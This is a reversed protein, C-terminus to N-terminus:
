RPSIGRMGGTNTPLGKLGQAQSEKYWRKELGAGIYPIRRAAAKGLQKARSEGSPAFIIGALEDLDSGVPGFATGSVKGLPRRVLSESVDGVIGFLASQLYNAMIRNFVPNKSGIYEGREQLEEEIDGSALGKIAAKIDGIVEGAVQYTLLIAGAKIMKRTLTPQRKVANAMNRTNLFSFRKFLFPLRLLLNDAFMAKSLTLKDPYGSSIEVGRGGAFDIQEPTLKDQKLVETVDGDIFEQLTKSWKGPNKKAKNFLVQAETRGALSGITRILKETATTGYAKGLLKGQGVDHLLEKRLIQHGGSRTAIDASKHPNKITNFIAKATNKVGLASSLAALDGMNTIGFQSLKSFVEWKVIKDYLTHQSSIDGLEERNLYDNVIKQAKVPDEANRIAQSIKSGSAAVDMPGYRKARTIAKALEYQHAELVDLSEIYGPLKFDRAHQASTFREGKETVQKMMADVAAPSLPRGQADKGHKLLKERLAVPDKFLEDPYRHPFYEGTHKQFPINKGASTQMRVNAAEALDGLYETSKRLTKYADRVKNSSAQSLPVQGDLIKIVEAQEDKSLSRRVQRTKEAEQGGLRNSETREDHLMKALDSGVKGMKKLKSLSSVALPEYIAKYLTSDRFRKPLAKVAGTFTPNKLVPNAAKKKEIIEAVSKRAVKVKKEGKGTEAVKPQGKSYVKAEKLIDKASKGEPAGVPTVREGEGFKKGSFPEDPSSPTFSSAPPKPPKPPGGFRSGTQPEFREEVPPKVPATTLDPEETYDLAGKKNPTFKKGKGKPSISVTKAPKGWWEPQTPIRGEPALLEPLDKGEIVGEILRDLEEQKLKPSEGVSKGSAGKGDPKDGGSIGGPKGGGESKISAAQRALVDEKSEPRRRAEIYERLLEPIEAVYDGTKDTLAKFIQSEYHTTSPFRTDVQSFAWTFGAGEERALNHAYEHKIIHVFRRAAEPPSLKRPEYEWTARSKFGTYLADFPNITILNKLNPSSTAPDALNMGGAGLDTVRYGYKDTTGVLEDPTFYSALDDLLGGMHRAILKFTPSNEFRALEDTTYKEGSDIIVHKNGPKSKVSDYLNKIETKQAARAPEMVNSSIWRTIDGKVEENLGQRNAPFPYKAHGEAVKPKVDIVIREPVFPMEHIGAAQTESHYFIGNNLFILKSGRRELNDLDYYIAADNEPTTITDKYSPLPKGQYKQVDSRQTPLIGAEGEKTFKSIVSTPALTDPDSYRSIAEIDKVDPSSETITQLLDKAKNFYRERPFFVEIRMGTPTTNSVVESELPVGVEQNLFEEPKGSFKYKIRKGNEIVVSEVRMFDGGLFPAAKAFGFGGAAGQINRKGSKGVDSFENYLQSENMGRGFDQFTISKSSAQTSPNKTDEVFGVRVPKQVNAIKMEDITNQMLEQILVSPRDKTYLSTGLQRLVQPDAGGMAINPRGTKPNVIVPGVPRDETGSYGGERVKMESPKMNKLNDFEEIENYLKAVERVDAEEFTKRNAVEGVLEALEERKTAIEPPDNKQPHWLEPIEGAPEVQDPLGLNKAKEELVDRRLVDVDDYERWDVDQEEAEKIAREWRAEFDDPPEKPIRMESPKIDVDPLERVPEKVVSTDVPEQYTRPLLPDKGYINEALPKFSSTETPGVGPGTDIPPEFPVINRPINPERGFRRNLEAQAVRAAAGRGQALRNLEEPSLTQITPVKTSPKIPEQVIPQQVTPKVPPVIPEQRVRPLADSVIGTTEIDPLPARPEQVIPGQEKGGFMRNWLGQRPIPRGAGSVISGQVPRAGAIGSSPDPATIGGPTTPRIPRTPVLETSLTPEMGLVSTDVTPLDEIPPVANRKSPDGWNITRPTDVRGQARSAIDTQQGFIDLTAPDNLNIARGTEPALFGSPTLPIPETAPGLLARPPRAGLQKQPVLNAKPIPRTPPGPLLNQPVAATNVKGGRAARGGLLNLATPFIVDGAAEGYKGEEFEKEIGPVDYGITQLAARGFRSRPDRTTDLYAEIWPAAMGQKMEEMAGPEGYATGIVNRLFNAFGIGTKGASKGLGSAINLSGKHAKLLADRFPSPSLQGPKTPPTIDEWQSPNYTGTPTIDEWQSPNYTRRTPTQPPM